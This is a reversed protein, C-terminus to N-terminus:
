LGNARVYKKSMRTREMRKLNRVVNKVFEAAHYEVIRKM